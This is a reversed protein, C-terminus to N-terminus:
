VEEGHLTAAVAFAVLGVLEQPQVDSLLLGMTELTQLLHKVAQRTKETLDGPGVGVALAVRQFTKKKLRLKGKEVRCIQFQSLGVVRGLDVQRIAAHKRLAWIVQGLCLAHLSPNM